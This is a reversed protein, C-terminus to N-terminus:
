YYYYYNNNYHQQQLQQQQRYQEHLINLTYALLLLLDEFNVSVIRSISVTVVVSRLSCM